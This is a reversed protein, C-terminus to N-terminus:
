MTFWRFDFFTRAPQGMSDLKMGISVIERWTCNLLNANCIRDQNFNLNNSVGRGMEFKQDYFENCLLYNRNGPSVLNQQKSVGVVEDTHM